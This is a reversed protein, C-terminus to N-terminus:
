RSTLRETAKYLLYLPWHLHCLLRWRQRWPPRARRHGHDAPLNTATVVVACFHVPAPAGAHYDNRTGEFAEFYAPVPVLTALDFAGAFSSGVGALSHRYRMRDGDAALHPAEPSRRREILDQIVLVPSAQLLHTAWTQPARAYHLVNSAIAWDFRGFDPPPPQDLNWDGINVITLTAGPLRRHLMLVDHRSPSILLVSPHPTPHREILWDLARSLAAHNVRVVPPPTWLPTM